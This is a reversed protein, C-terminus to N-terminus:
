NDTKDNNKEELDVNLRSSTETTTEITSYTYPTQTGDFPSSYVNDSSRINLSNINKVIGLVVKVKPNKENLQYYQVIGVKKTKQIMGEGMLKNIHTNVTMKSLRTMRVLDAIYLMENGNEAFAELIRVRPQDGFIETLLPM